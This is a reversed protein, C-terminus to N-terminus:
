NLKFPTPSACSGGAAPADEAVSSGAEQAIRQGCAQFPKALRLHHRLDRRHRPPLEVVGHQMRDTPQWLGIQPLPQCSEIAGFDNVLPINGRARM